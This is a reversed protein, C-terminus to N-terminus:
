KRFPLDLVPWRMCAALEEKLIAAFSDDVVVNKVVWTSDAILQAKKPWHIISEKLVAKTGEGLKKVPPSQILKYGSPMNMRIKQDIIFPFRLTYSREKGIMEGVRSPIGGPLRLLLNNGLVIGPMCKVNFELKYGTKSPQVSLPELIMGPIAFNVRKRLFDSLGSQSPLYGDSMLQTWGGSVSVMLTGEASGSESLDLKWLLELRHDAPSGSSVTKKDFSDNKLSYLLAGAISPATVGYASTQGAQYFVTKGGNPSLELVPATWFSASVPSDKDLAMSTQWWIKTEWGLSKLWKNLILTQEWPTWPGEEPINEPSRVWSRPYGSLKKSPQGIWEMLKLGTKTKDGESISKPFKVAPFTRELDTMASISQTIGKRSSFSLSPRKYVVFGEGDWKEQNMVTWKYKQLGSSKTVLPDKIDKGQWYLERGEPLEATVNQEWIPLPGSMYITGDIGYRKEHKTRVVIVVARGSADDPTSIKKVLAGGPMTEESVYLDGEKMSTMPNYWAAEEIDVSGNAPIPLKMEKLQDPISEGTLVIYYLTEEMTGDNLMRFDNNKLWVVSTAGSFGEISPVEKNLRRVEESTNWAETIAPFVLLATILPLFIATLRFFRRM